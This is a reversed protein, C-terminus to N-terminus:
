ENCGISASNLKYITWNTKWQNKKHVYTHSCHRGTM